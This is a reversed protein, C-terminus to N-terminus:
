LSFQMTQDPGPEPCFGNGTKGYSRQATSSHPAAEPPDAPAATVAGAAPRGHTRSPSLQLLRPTPGPKELGMPM